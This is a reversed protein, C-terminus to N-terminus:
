RKPKEQRNQHHVSNYYHQLLYLLILILHIPDCKLWNSKMPRRSMERGKEEKTEPEREKSQSLGQGSRKAPSPAPSASNTSPRVISFCRPLLSTFTLSGLFMLFLSNLHLLTGTYHEYVLLLSYHMITSSM